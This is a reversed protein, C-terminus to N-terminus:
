TVLRQSSLGAGHRHTTRGTQDKALEPKRYDTARSWNECRGTSEMRGWHPSPLSASRPVCPRLLNEHGEASSLLFRAAADPSLARMPNADFTFAAPPIGM